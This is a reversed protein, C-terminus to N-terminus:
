QSMNAGDAATPATASTTTTTTSLQTAEAAPQASTPSREKSPVRGLVAEAKQDVFRTVLHQAIGLVIAYALIQGQSDLESLGPIFKGYLLMLGTVATLAGAPLKLLALSVPVSYPTSTGRLKQITFTASLAGGLLGM